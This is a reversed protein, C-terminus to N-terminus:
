LVQYYFLAEKKKSDYIFLDFNRGDNPHFKIQYIGSKSSILEKSIETPPLQELNIPLSKIEGNVLINKLVINSLIILCYGDGNPDWQERFLKINYNDEKLNIEFVQKIIRQPSRDFFYNYLVVVLFIFLIIYILFFLKKM